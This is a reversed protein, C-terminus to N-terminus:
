VARHTKAARRTRQDFAEERQVGTLQSEPEATLKGRLDMRRVDKQRWLFREPKTENVRHFASVNNPNGRVEAEKRCSFSCKVMM